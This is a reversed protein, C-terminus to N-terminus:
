IKAPLYPKGLAYIPNGRSVPRHFASPLDSPALGEDSGTCEYSSVDM